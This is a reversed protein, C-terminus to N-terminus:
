PLVNEERKGNHNDSKGRLAGIDSAKVVVEEHRAACGFTPGGGGNLLGVSDRNPQLLKAQHSGAVVTNEDRSPDSSYQSANASRDCVDLARHCVPFIAYRGPGGLSTQLKDPSNSKQQPM